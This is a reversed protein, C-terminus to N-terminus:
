FSCSARFIHVTQCVYLWVNNQFTIIIRRVNPSIIKKMLQKHRKLLFSNHVINEKQSHMIEIHNRVPPKMDGCMNDKELHM